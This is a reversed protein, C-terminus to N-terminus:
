SMLDAFMQEMIEEMMIQNMQRMVEPGQLFDKITMKQQSFDRVFDRISSIVAIESEVEELMQAIPNIGQRVAKRYDSVVVGEPTNKVVRLEKKLDEYQNKLFENEQELHNCKRTLDDSNKSEISELQQYQKEIELLRALDGEQYAKNIEKMIETNRMQVDDDTVKDPHFIEALRLFIQRIKRAGKTKHVPEQEQPIEQNQERDDQPSAFFDQYEGEGIEEENIEERDFIQDSDTGEYDGNKPSIVGSFQLNLYIQQINKRSQKGLKKKSFIEDFLTHIERDIAAIEKFRPTCKQYIETAVSRMQEVYNNLETRKRKIQKLLWQNEKELVAQREHLSSLALSTTVNNPSSSLTKQSM